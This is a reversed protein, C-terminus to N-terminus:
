LELKLAEHATRLNSLEDKSLKAEEKTQELASNAKQLYEESRKLEVKWKQANDKAEQEGTSALQLEARLTQMDFSMKEFESSIGKLKQLEANLDKIHFNKREMEVNMLKMNDKLKQLEESNQELQSLSSDIVEAMSLMALAFGLDHKNAKELMEKYREIHANAEDALKQVYNQTHKSSFSCIIGGVDVSIRNLSNM